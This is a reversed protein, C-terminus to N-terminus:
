RRYESWLKKMMRIHRKIQDIEDLELDFQDGEYESAIYGTFGSDKIIGVIRSYDIGPSELQENVYYFKGHIYKTYPLFAALGPYDVHKRFYRYFLEEILAEGNEGGGIDLNLALLEDKEKEACFADVIKRFRKKEPGEPENNLFTPPPIELFSSMDPVIGIYPSNKRQFLELYEQWIPTKPVHPGHMEVALHIGLAEAYPLCEEMIKPTISYQSRLISFGLDKAIKLDRITSDFIEAHNMDRDSRVGLDIYASYCVPKLNYKGVLNKFEAEFEPSCYPYSPLMQAGVLEIGDAGLEGAIRMCDEFSYEFNAYKNAFAYLTISHKLSNM